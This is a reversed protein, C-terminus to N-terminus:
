ERQLSELKRQREMIGLGCLSCRSSQVCLSFLVPLLLSIWKLFSVQALTTLHFVFIKNRSLELLLFTLNQNDRIGRKNKFNALSKGTRGWCTVWIKLTKKMFLHHRGNCFDENLIFPMCDAVGWKAYSSFSNHNQIEVHQQPGIHLENYVKYLISCPNPFFLLSIDIQSHSVFSPM